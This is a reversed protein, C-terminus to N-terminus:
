GLMELQRLSCANFLVGQQLFEGLRLSPMQSTLQIQAPTFGARLAREVEHDSSADIHLGLDRFLQLVGHSPNAKMAYRLTFGFPAPFALAQRAAAELAARDYVYCPTGFRRRVEAAVDATLRSARRLAEHANMLRCDVGIGPVSSTIGATTNCDLFEEDLITGLLPPVRLACWM